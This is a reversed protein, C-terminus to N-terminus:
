IILFMGVFSMIIAVIDLRKVKDGLICASFFPILITNLFMICIGKSYSTYQFALNAFVDTLVGFFVRKVVTAYSNSPISTLTQKHIKINISM